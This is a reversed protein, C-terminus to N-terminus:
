VGHLQDKVFDEVIRGAKELMKRGATSIGAEEAATSAAMLLLPIIFQLQSENDLYGPGFKQVLDADM